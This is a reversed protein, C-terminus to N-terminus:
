KGKLVLWEMDKLYTTLVAKRKNEFTTYLKSPAKDVLSIAAPLYYWVGGISDFVIGYQLAPKVSTQLKEGLGELKKTFVIEVITGEHLFNLCANHVEVKSGLPVATFDYAQTNNTTHM